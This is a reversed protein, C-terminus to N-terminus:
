RLLGCAEQILKGARNLVDTPVAFTMRVNCPLAYAEGPLSAIGTAGLLYAAFDEGSDIIHGNPTRRGIVGSCAVCLYFTAQPPMCSLGASDNILRVLLDRKSQLIESYQTAVGQPGFLAAVAAAQSVSSACSTTLYQVRTMDAIIERPGAAWGIRWGTM